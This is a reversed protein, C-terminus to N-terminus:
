YYTYNIFIYNRNAEQYIMNIDKNCSHRCVNELYDKEKELSSELSNITSNFTTKFDKILNQKSIILKELAIGNKNYIDETTCILNNLSNFTCDESMMNAINDKFSKNNQM